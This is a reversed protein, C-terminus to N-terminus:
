PIRRFMVDVAVGDPRMWQNGNGVWGIQHGAVVGFNQVTNIRLRGTGVGFTGANNASFWTTTPNEVVMSHGLQPLTGAPAGAVPVVYMAVLDGPQLQLVGGVRAPQLAAHSGPYLIPDMTPGNANPLMYNRAPAALNETIKGAAIAWRYAFGHCIGMHEGEPVYTGLIVDGPCGAPMPPDNTTIRKHFKNQLYQKMEMWLRYAVANTAGRGSFESPENSKWDEMAQYLAWLTMPNPAGQAAKLKSVVTDLRKTRMRPFPRNIATEFTTDNAAILELYM